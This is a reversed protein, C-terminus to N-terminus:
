IAHPVQEKLGTGPVQWFLLWCGENHGGRGDGAACEEGWLAQSAPGWGVHRSLAREM